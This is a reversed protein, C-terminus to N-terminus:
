DVHLRRLDRAGNCEMVLNISILQFDTHGQGSHVRDLKGLLSVAAACASALRRSLGELFTSLGEGCVSPRSGLQHM